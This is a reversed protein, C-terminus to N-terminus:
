RWDMGVVAKSLAEGIVLDHDIVRQVLQPLTMSQKNDATKEWKISLPVANYLNTLNTICILTKTKFGSPFRIFWANFGSGVGLFSTTRFPAVAARLSSRGGVLFITRKDLVINEPHQTFYTTILQGRSKVETSLSDLSKTNVNFNGSFGHTPPSFIYANM